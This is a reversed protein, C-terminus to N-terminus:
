NTQKSRPVPGHAKQNDLVIAVGGVVKDLCEAFDSM